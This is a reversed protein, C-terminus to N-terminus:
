KFLQRCSDRRRSKTMVWIIWKKIKFIDVNHPLNGWFIISYTIVLHVYSYYIMKLTDESMLPTIVKIAYCAM